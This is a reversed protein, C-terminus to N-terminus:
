PVVDIHRLAHNPRTLSRSNSGLRNGSISTLARRRTKVAGRDSLYRFEALKCNKEVLRDTASM